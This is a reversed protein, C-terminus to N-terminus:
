PSFNTALVASKKHQFGCLEFLRQGLRETGGLQTAM